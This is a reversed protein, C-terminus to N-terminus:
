RSGLGPKRGDALNALMGEHVVADGVVCAEDQEGFHSLRPHHGAFFPHDDSDLHKDAHAFPHLFADLIFMRRCAAVFNVTQKQLAEGSDAPPGLLDFRDWSFKRVVMFDIM